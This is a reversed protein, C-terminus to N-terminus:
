GTLLLFEMLITGEQFNLLSLTSLVSILENALWITWHNQSSDPTKKLMNVKSACQVCSLRRHHYCLSNTHAHSFLIFWIKPQKEYRILKVKSARAKIFHEFTALALFQFTVLGSFMIPNYAFFKKMTSTRCIKNSRRFNWILM